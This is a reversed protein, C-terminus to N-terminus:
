VGILYGLMGFTLRSIEIIPHNKLNDINFESKLNHKRNILRRGAGDYYSQKLLSFYTTRPYHYIFLSEVYIINFGEKIARINIDIDEATIFQEDFLGIKEFIYRSIMLNNTPYTVDKGNYYMPVRGLDGWKNNSKQFIKGAVIDKDIYERLTSLWGIPVESDSDLFVLKKGSSLRICENRGVARNGPKKGLVIKYKEKSAELFEYTGDTSNGDVIVLEYESNQQKGLSALLRKINELDNKVTILISIDMWEM